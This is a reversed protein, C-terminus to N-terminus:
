PHNKLYEFVLRRNENRKRENYRRSRRLFSERHRRQSDVVSKRHCDRCYHQLGDSKWKNKNFEAAPKLSGCSRCLKSAGGM